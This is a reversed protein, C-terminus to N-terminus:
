DKKFIENFSICICLDISNIHNYDPTIVYNFCFDAIVKCSNKTFIVM